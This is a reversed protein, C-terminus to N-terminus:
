SKNRKYDGAKYVSHWEKAQGNSFEAVSEGREQEETGMRERMNVISSSHVQSTTAQGNSRSSSFNDTAVTESEVMEEGGRYTQFENEVATSSEEHEESEETTTRLETTTIDTIVRREIEERITYESSESGLSSTDGLHARPIRMGDNLYSALHVAQAESSNEALNRSSGSSKLKARPIGLEHAYLDGAASFASFDAGSDSSTSQDLTSWPFLGNRYAMLPERYRTFCRCKTCFYFLCCLTLLLFLLALLILLILGANSPAVECFEGTWGETCACTVNKTLANHVCDGHQNCLDCLLAGCVRGPEAPNGDVYGEPCACSYGIRHDECVAVGSCNTLGLACEDVDILNLCMTDEKMGLHVRNESHRIDIFGSNCHCEAEQEMNVCTTNSPCFSVDSCYDLVCVSGPVSDKPAADSYGPNCQCRYLHELDICRSNPSCENDEPRECENYGVNPLCRKGPDSPNLDRYTPPCACRYSKPGEDFCLGKPHCTNKYCARFPDPQYPNLYLGSEGIQYNNRDIIYQILARYADSPTRVTGRRFNMTANFLLGTDWSANVHMPELIENVEASVFANKLSTHPYCQGVGDEFMRVYAKNISDLPNAFSNNYVLNQQRRRIVWLPIQWSEVPHCSDRPSSRKEGNACGCLEGAICVEGLDSNCFHGACLDGTPLSKACPDLLDVDSAVQLRGGGVAGNSRQLSEMLQDWLDCADVPSKSPVTNVVYNVLLGDDWTSNVTKPHTIYSVDTSVYRATYETGGVTRGMDKSFEKAFEVYAENKSDGYESSYFLPQQGRSVVRFALPTRDVPQCTKSVDRRSENPRCECKSGGVCVERLNDKCYNQRGCPIGEFRPQSLPVHTVPPEDVTLAVCVRGMESPNKSEDYFNERCTCSYGDETDQCDANLDCKNMKPDACENYLCLRGPRQPMSDQYPSKCKCTYGGPQDICEAHESCDNLNPSACENIIYNCSTGPSKPNDDHYGSRCKCSFGIPKDFCDAFRSCNNLRPSSCEDIQQLCKRGPRNKDPSQDISNLPCRCSYGDDLNECIAMPDCDNLSRDLCENVLPQCIRGPRKVRDPSQDSYGDRCKCSYGDPSNQETCIANEACDNKSPDLCIPDTQVCVRGPKNKIDSSRDEFGPLCSCSYSTPGTSQCRADRHCDNLNHDQCPHKPPAKPPPPLECIRGRPSGAPTQDQYGRRCKCTYGGPQEICEAHESCDNLNPSACKNIIHNCSTGPSNPNEDHYGDRCKCTFGIPKDFCDAFRSCNNLRPSSCEDIQQLCKRGPRNKDPSQDISNLPCRCNYGDDLNECVALPDCDNLSRDLCEDVLPQCIRGPRKVRDPSQDTFGDRCHCSYGDPSNQETCIANEACDNKSPDLCIPDTQVCVRGPKNKIDSSRDEFGPLCSCSYSTPGTSQCRADRHCDNLNHDQCPHKPPAKPPPPLECVRGRPSGTPARDQYPSKCECDYGGEPKDFCIANRSCNNFRADRCPRNRVCIRGQTGQPSQDIYGPICSCKYNQGGLPECIAASSCEHNSPCVDPPGCVRGPQTLLNPSRDIYGDKCECMYGDELKRCLANPSCTHRNEECENIRKVCLRGPNRLEDADSFGAKCICKFSDATDICIADKSCTNLEPASCENILKKCVRGPAIHPNPSYDVFGPKCRCVFSEPTDSCISDPSCNHTGQLCENQEAVCVRGPRKIPEPSKDLFGAACACLYGEATDICKASPDCDHESTLCENRLCIDTVPHRKDSTACQCTHFRGSSHLLCRENKRLDCPVMATPDCSGALICNHSYPNREFGMSCQCQGHGSKDIVCEENAECQAKGTSCDDQSFSIDPRDSSTKSGGIETKTSICIGSRRDRAFNAPCVCRHNGFHTKTCVEPSLCSTLVQPNCLSGGCVRTLPHREFGKECQCSSQGKQDVCVENLTRDCGTQSNANCRGPPRQEREPAPCAAKQILSRLRTDLDKFRDVYFWRHPSGAISELESSLVHDTVGIAFMNVSLQRAAKSPETVNDQSRGDTIVIAVRSVNSSVPRAGRRESFGELVMHQIAAGTRTLGTLYQTQTIAQLLSDKDTYQNLDFEHRIQDSYQILGVRTNEMGIEFLEVFERVFRLVEHKFVFSGISGSGDILFMLDTKQKPCTTQVTCVRGPPLNASASVDVFGTICQCTYGSPLDICDANDDCTNTTKSLCENSANSCKRGPPLGFQSSTDVFGDGCICAYGSTADVCDAFPSCEHAGNACENVLEKCVRGPQTEPDPSMDFYGSRCSCQFSDFVNICVANKDCDSSSQCASFLRCTNDDFRFANDACECVFEGKVRRDVCIENAGCKPRAPDCSDLSLSTDAHQSDISIKTPKNCVRGPYHTINNSADVFGSKCTCLYSEKTDECIANDSCDNRSGDLCENVAEVCKRGPLRNFSESIDAFGPRCRCSYSDDTDVCVSNSDCDVGYKKPNACENVRKKCIRGPQGQPSVDAFGSHCQCTFGEAQDLCTADPSCNNLRFDQCENIVLCRGDPLREYNGPCACKYTGSRFICVELKTKDCSMPDNVNCEPPPPVNAKVCIRGPRDRVNSSEDRYGEKCRCTFSEATDICTANSHCDHKNETCENIIERCVRGSPRGHQRSVDAFGSTCECSPGEPTERCEAQPACDSKACQNFRRCSRGPANVLDVSVDQYGQRCRCSYGVATNICDAHFDCEATGLACEDVDKKCKRGPSQPDPSIDVYGAPCRCQFYGPQESHCEALPDCDHLSYDNCPNAGLALSQKIGFVFIILGLRWNMARGFRGM